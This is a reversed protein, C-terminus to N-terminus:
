GNKDGNCINRFLDIHAQVQHQQTFREEVRARGQAGMQTRLEADGLLRKIAEALEVPRNPAIVLGTEGHLNVEPLAGINSCIVPKRAAMAELITVGLTESEISAQLIIDCANMILPIDQRYGLWIVADAQGLETLRARLQIQYDRCRADICDGVFIFRANPFAARVLPIAEVLVHWGKLPQIWGVMAILLSEPAISQEVRFQAVQAVPLDFDWPDIGIPITHVCEPKAGLRLIAARAANSIAVIASARQTIRHIALRHWPQSKIFESMTWVLPVHCRTLIPEVVIASRHSNTFVIDPKVERLLAEFRRTFSPLKSIERVLTGPSSFQSLSPLPLIVAPLGKQALLESFLGSEPVVVTAVTVDAPSFRQLLDAMHLQNGGLVASHTVALLRIPSLM